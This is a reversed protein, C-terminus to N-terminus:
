KGKIEKKSLKTIIHGIIFGISISLIMFGISMLSISVIYWKFSDVLM